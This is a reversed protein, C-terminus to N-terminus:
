RLGGFYLFAAVILGAIACGYCFWVGRQMTAYDTNVSATIAALRAAEDDRCYACAGGNL